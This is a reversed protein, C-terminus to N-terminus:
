ANGNDSHQLKAPELHPIMLGGGLHALMLQTPKTHPPTCVAIPEARDEHPRMPALVGSGPAREVAKRRNLAAAARKRPKKQRSGVEALVIIVRTRYTLAM